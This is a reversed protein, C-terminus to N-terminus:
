KEKLQLVTQNHLTDDILKYIEDQKKAVKELDALGLGHIEYKALAKLLEAYNNFYFLAKFNKGSREWLTINLKDATVKYNEGIMLGDDKEKSRRM